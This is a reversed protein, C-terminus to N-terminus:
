NRASVTGPFPLTGTVHILINIIGRKVMLSHALSYACVDDVWQERVREILRM